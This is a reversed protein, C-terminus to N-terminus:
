FKSIVGLVEADLYEAVDEQTSIYYIDDEKKCVLAVIGAAIGTGVIAGILVRIGMAVLGATIDQTPTLISWIGMLNAGILLGLLLFYWYRILASIIRGNNKETM